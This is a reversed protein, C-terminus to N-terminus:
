GGRRERAPGGALSLLRRAREEWSYRRAFTRSGERMWAPVALARRVTEVLCASTYNEAIFVQGPLLEALERSAPIDTSAVPLGAALYELLKMPWSRRNFETGAVGPVLGVDWHQIWAPLEDYPVPGIWRLNEPGRPEIGEAPGAMIWQWDPTEVAAARVMAWDCRGTLRGVFGIRPRDARREPLDLARHPDLPAPRGFHEADVGMRVLIKRAPRECAAALERSTFVALDASALLKGEARRIQRRIVPRCLVDPANRHDDTCEYVHSVTELAGPLMGPWQWSYHFVVVSSANSAALFKAARASTRSCDWRRAFEPFLVPVIPLHAARMVFFGRRELDAVVAQRSRERQGVARRFPKGDGGCEIYLVKRGLKWFAEAMRLAQSGCPGWAPPGGVVVIWADEM